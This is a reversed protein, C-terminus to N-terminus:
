CAPVNTQQSVSKADSERQDRRSLSDDTSFGEPYRAMLKDVNAQAVDGMSIEHQDCLAAVYWLVDGLEKKLVDKDLPHDHGVVKKLYDVVEGAEGALGMSLVATAYHPNAYSRKTRTALVQYENMKM